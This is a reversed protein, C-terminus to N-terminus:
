HRKISPKVSSARLRREFETPLWINKEVDFVSLRDKIREKEAIYSPCNLVCIGEDARYKEDGYQLYGVGIYGVNRVRNTDVIRTLEEEVSKTKKNNSRIWDDLYKTAESNVRYTDSSKVYDVVLCGLRRKKARNFNTKNTKLFLYHGSATDLATRDIRAQFTISYMWNNLYRIFDSHTFGIDIFVWYRLLLAVKNTIIEEYTVDNNSPINPEDGHAIANRLDKLHNFHSDTLGLVSLIENNTYELKKSLKKGFSSISTNRVNQVIQECMSDIVLNADRIQVEDSADSSIKFERIAARAAKKIKGFQRDSVSKELGNCFLSVYRDVLSVYALIRYEWFGKYALIGSIRVWVNRYEKNRSSFYGQLLTGWKNDIFLEKSPVFFNRRVLNDINENSSSLFYISCTEEKSSRDLVYKLGISHGLLLTFFTRIERILSLLESVAWSGDLAEITIISYINLQHNNSDVHKTEWWNENSILFQHSNEEIKAKFVKQELKRVISKKSNEFVGDSDMWQSLGDFLVSVKKFSSYKKNGKVVVQPFISQEVVDCDMLIYRDNESVCKFITNKKHKTLSVSFDFTVQPVKNKGVSFKGKAVNKGSKTYVDVDV